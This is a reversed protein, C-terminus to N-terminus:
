QNETSRAPSPTRSRIRREEPCERAYHGEGDCNYCRIEKSRNNRPPTGWTVKADSKKLLQPEKFDRRQMTPSNKLAEVTKKMDKMAQRLESLEARLM